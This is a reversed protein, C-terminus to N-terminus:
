ERKKFQLFIAKCHQTPKQWVAVCIIMVIRIYAYNRLTHTHIDRGEQAERGLGVGLDDCLM